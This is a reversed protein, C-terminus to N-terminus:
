RPRTLKRGRRDPGNFCIIVRNLVWGNEVGATAAALDVRCRVEAAEGAGKVFMLADPLARMPRSDTAGV